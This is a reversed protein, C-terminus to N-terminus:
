EHPSTREIRVNCSKLSPTKAKPDLSISFLENVPTEPFSIPMFLMGQSLTDTIKAITTVEGTSSVVRVKESDAIALDRADSENVEVFAQISFKKLRSSRSSRSGTGFHFLTAGTLLTFPYDGKSKVRSVYEVPCFCAFGKLSQGGHIREVGWDGTNSGTQYMNKTESDIYDVRKYLSDAIEDMVQQPSSYPMSSGMKDALQLIIKWDPLSEGQPKIAQQIRQMRGEFNTFTGEKEAFSATPLIVSALKATETLFMDQVVLFDLSALAKTIFRSNPFSLVPNEGVIYMGKIKGEEAREMIELASLGADSPLSAGWREEFKRRVQADAVSQYGPLFHPLTGMDCAGQGNNERQLAYIGGGSHGINGTLLALNALAKVNDTGNIYQTIGTGYVIAARSAKAYLRAAEHVEEITVGTTKEIYEPTYEKLSEAFAEFNDTRRAVFEEDLLGEDIIVKSMGNMLAVDSGVKPQLWLHAFSSIKTQRPDILLLKAGQWKVARKIAYGVIPASSSPDAGIVMIVEAQELDSLYNTTGYFGISSGLGAHNASNYLRGSNDINNTGLVCRAFRQLMYNEENTCKSSGLVSLSNSGHEDRIKKFRTAVLELAQEWSIEEFSDNVKVLPKTLRDLSHIFDCGYSGRVCLTGNNVLGEKCPTVQVVRDDKVELCISCGCGCFPCTTQVTTKSTGRYPKGREMLAGTPCLAVCTGCFTCESNELPLNNLTAPRTTFGRQFYDIAGEVVLEQCARICKACLICKSLDRELFPNLEQITAMQPVRQFEVLGIGMDSAIQRLQCHNGKDCILCSDPHSALMLKVIIKRHEIVRASHTNIAMGSAIPTVCSAMLAGTREDEVLCVRCAGIPSLHSDHCLTPIDIGSEQALGLISMGPQGSVERGNLTITIPQM